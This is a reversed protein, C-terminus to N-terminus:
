EETCECLSLPLDCVECWTDPDDTILPEGDLPYFGDEFLREGPTLYSLYEERETSM